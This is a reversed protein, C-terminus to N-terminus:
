FEASALNAAKDRCEYDVIFVPVPIGTDITDRDLHRSRQTERGTFGDFFGEFNQACPGGFTGIAIGM